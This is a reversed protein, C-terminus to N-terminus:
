GPRVFTVTIESDAPLGGAGVALSAGFSSEGFLKFYKGLRELNQGKEAMRIRQKRKVTRLTEPAAGTRAELKTAETTEDEVDCVAARTVDDLLHVPIRNGDSDYLNGADYFALKRMENLVMEATLEFRCLQRAKWDKIAAAVRVNRLMRSGIVSASSESAGIFRAARSANEDKIYEGYFKAEKPTM